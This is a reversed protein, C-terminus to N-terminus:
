RKVSREGNYRDKILNDGYSIIGDHRFRGDYRTDAVALVALDDKVKGTNRMGDNGNDILTMRPPNESVHLMGPPTTYHGYNREGNYINEGDYKNKGGKVSNPDSAEWLIFKLKWSDYLRVIEDYGVMERTAFSIGAGITEAILFNFDVAETSTGDHGITIGAPFDPHIHITENSYYLKMIKVIEPITSHNINLLKRIEIMLNFMENDMGNRKLGFLAGIRDLLATNKSYVASDLQGKLQSLAITLEDLHSNFTKAVELTQGKSMWGPLFPPKDYESFDIDARDTSIRM